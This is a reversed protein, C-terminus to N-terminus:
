VGLVSGPRMVHTREPFLLCLTPMRIGTMGALIMLHPYLIHITYAATIQTEGLVLMSQLHLIASGLVELLLYKQLYLLLFVDIGILIEIETM